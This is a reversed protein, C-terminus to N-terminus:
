ARPTPTLYPSVLLHVLEDENVIRADARDFLTQGDNLYKVLFLSFTDDTDAFATSLEQRGDARFVLRVEGGADEITTEVSQASAADGSFLTREYFKNNQKSRSVAAVQPVLPSVLVERIEIPERFVRVSAEYHAQDFIEDPRPEGTM